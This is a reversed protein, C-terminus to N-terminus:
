IISDILFLNKVIDFIDLNNHQIKKLDRQQRPNSDEINNM